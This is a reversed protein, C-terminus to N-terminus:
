PVFTETRVEPASMGKLHWLIMLTSRVDAYFLDAFGVHLPGRPAGVYVDDIVTTKSHVYVGDSRTYGRLKTSANPHLLLGSWMEEQFTNTGPLEAKGQVILVIFEVVALAEYRNFHM